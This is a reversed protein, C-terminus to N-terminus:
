KRKQCSLGCPFLGCEDIAFRMIEHGLEEEHTDFHAVISTHNHRSMQIFRPAKGTRMAHRQVFEAGYADIYRNEFEAVAVLVPLGTSGAHIVPSVAEYAAEDDGFYQRVNNANPNDPLSDARLRASILVAGKVDKSPLRGVNPDYLYSAVHCGGASHGILLISRPAGGFREINAAIWDIASAVDRAGEPYQAGPALRYEVNVGVLGQRSFWRLVNDYILGDSSKSGRTFAGGHVFVVVPRGRGSACRSSSEFVDLRHAPDAGYAIDRHVVIGDSAAKEKHHPRYVDLVVQRSAGLDDNWVKGVADLRARDAASLGAFRM